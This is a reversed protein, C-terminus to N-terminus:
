GRDDQTEKSILFTDKSSHCSVGLNQILSTVLQEDVHHRPLVM